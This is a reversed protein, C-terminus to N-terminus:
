DVVHPPRDSNFTVRTVKGSSFIYEATEPPNGWCTRGVEMRFNAGNELILGDATHITVGTACSVVKRRPKYFWCSSESDPKVYLYGHAQKYKAPFLTGSSMRSAKIYM